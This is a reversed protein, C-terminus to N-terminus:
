AARDRPPESATEAAAFSDGGCHWCRDPACPQGPDSLAGCDTCVPCNGPPVPDGARYEPRHALSRPPVISLGPGPRDRRFVTIRGSKEAFAVRVQGLNEVGARRLAEHLESQGMLLQRLAARDIVGDRVLEFSRGEIAREALPSHFILTDLAKNIAVVVTIVLIAHLLPVDPYFMADGVASGLAIVLLFEVVSMQAVSRGGIWRILLIAYLYILATRFAIELLFLPPADGLFMRQLDFPVVPDSM